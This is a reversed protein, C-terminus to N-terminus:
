RWNRMTVTPHDDPERITRHPSTDRYRERALAIKARMEDQGTDWCARNCWLRKYREPGLDQQCSVCHTM